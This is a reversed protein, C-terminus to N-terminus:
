NQRWNISNFGIRHNDYTQGWYPARDPLADLLHMEDATLCFRHLAEWNSRVREVVRSTPIAILGRQLVWRLCIQAPAVRHKAALELILQNNLCSLAGRGISGWAMVGIGQQRCYSLDAERRCLPSVQIQNVMPAVKVQRCFAILQAKTFNSVGIAKITGAIYAEELARWCSLVNSQPFHLLMLDLYNVNLETLVRQIQAKTQRYGFSPDVNWIKSTLFLRQRPVSNRSIALALDCHSNYRVALDFLRYGTRLAEELVLVPNAVNGDALKFTGFGLVPMKVGNSLTLVQDSIM